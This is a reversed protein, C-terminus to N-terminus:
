GQPFSWDCSIFAFHLFLIPSCAHVYTSLCTAQGISENLNFSAIPHAYTLGAAAM